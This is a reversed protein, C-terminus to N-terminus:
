PVVQPSDSGSERELRRLDRDGVVNARTLQLLTIDGRKDIAEKEDPTPLRIGGESNTFVLIVGCCLCITYDGPRPNPTNNTFAATICDMKYGCKPCAHVEVMIHDKDKKKGM